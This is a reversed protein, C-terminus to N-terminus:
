NDVNKKSRKKRTRIPSFSVHGIPLDDDILVTITKVVPLTDLLCAELMLTSVYVTKPPKGYKSTFKKIGKKLSDRVKKKMVKTSKTKEGISWLWRYEGTTMDELQKKNDAM